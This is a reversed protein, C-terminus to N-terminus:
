KGSGLTATFATPIGAVGKTITFGEKTFADAILTSSLKELYGPEAFGWIKQAMAWSSEERQSISQMLSTRLDQACLSDDILILIFIVLIYKSSIM